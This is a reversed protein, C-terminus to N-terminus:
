FMDQGKILCAIYDPTIFPGKINDIHIEIDGDNHMEGGVVFRGPLMCQWPEKTTHIIIQESTLSYPQKLADLVALTLELPTM